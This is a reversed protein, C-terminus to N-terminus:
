GDAPRLLANLRSSGRVQYEIRDYSLNHPQQLILMGLILVVDFFKNGENSRREKYHVSELDSRFDEWDIVTHLAVLRGDLRDLKQPQESTDFFGPQKVQKQAKIM